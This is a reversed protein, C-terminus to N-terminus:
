KVIDKTDNEFEDKTKRFDKLYIEFAKGIQVNPKEKAKNFICIIKEKDQM